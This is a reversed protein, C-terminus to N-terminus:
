VSNIHLGPSKEGGNKEDKAGRKEEGLDAKGQGVFFDL